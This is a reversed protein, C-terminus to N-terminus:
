EKPSTKIRSIRYTNGEIPLILNENQPSAKTTIVIGIREREEPTNFKPPLIIESTSTFSNGEFADNDISTVSNPVTLSILQNSQFAGWGISTVSNPIILDTLQNSNFAISEITTISNPLTLSTIQNTSFAGSEVTVLKNPLILHNIRNIFFAYSGITTISNPLTLSTLQNKEFARGGITTISGPLKLSKMQNNYFAWQGIEKLNDLSTFDISSIKNDKFADNGIKVLSKPLIVKTIIEKGSFAEDAIYKIKVGSYEEKIELTGDIIYTNDIIKMIEGESSIKLGDEEFYTVEKASCSVALIPIIGIPLLGLSLLQKKFQKM